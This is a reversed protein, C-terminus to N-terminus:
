RDLYRKKGEATLCYKGGRPGTCVAGAACDCGPAAPEAVAQAQAGVPVATGSDVAVPSRERAALEHNVAGGILLGGVVLVSVGGVALWGRRGAAENFKAGGKFLWWVLLVAVPLVFGLGVRIFADWHGIWKWSALAGIVLVAELVVFGLVAAIRAAMSQGKDSAAINGLVVGAMVWLFGVM